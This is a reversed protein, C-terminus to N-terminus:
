SENELPESMKSINNKIVYAYGPSKLPPPCKSFEWFLNNIFNHFM